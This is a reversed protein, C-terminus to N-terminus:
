AGINPKKKKEDKFGEGANYWVLSTVYGDDGQSAM